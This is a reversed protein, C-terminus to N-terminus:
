DTGSDETKTLSKKEFLKGRENFIKLIVDPNKSGLAEKIEDDKLLRAGNEDCLSMGVTLLKFESFAREAEETRALEVSGDENIKKIFLPAYPAVKAQESMTLEKFYAKAGWEEIDLSKVQIDKVEKLNELTLVKM